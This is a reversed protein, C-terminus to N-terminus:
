ICGTNGCLGRALKSGRFIADDFSGIGKSAWFMTNKDAFPHQANYEHLKSRAESVLSRGGCNLQLATKANRLAINQGVHEMHASHVIRWAQKMGHSSLYTLTNEPLSTELWVLYQQLKATNDLDTALIWFREVWDHVKKQDNPFRRLAADQEVLDQPVSYATPLTEHDLNQSIMQAPPHLRAALQAFFTCFRNNEM